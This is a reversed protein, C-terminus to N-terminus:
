KMVNDVGVVGVLMMIELFHMTIEMMKAEQITTEKSSIEYEDIDEEEEVDDEDDDDSKGTMLVLVPELM